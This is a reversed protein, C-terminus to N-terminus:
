NSYRISGELYYVFGFSSMGKRHRSSSHRSWLEEFLRGYRCRAGRGWGIWYQEQPCRHNSFHWRSCRRPSECNPVFTACDRRLDSWSHSKTLTPMAKLNQRTERPSPRTSSHPSRADILDARVLPTPPPRFSSPPLHFPLPLPHPTFNLATSKTDM